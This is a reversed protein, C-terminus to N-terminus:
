VHIEVKSMKLVSQGLLTRILSTESYIMQEDEPRPDRAKRSPLQLLGVVGSVSGAGPQPLWRCCGGLGPVCVHM